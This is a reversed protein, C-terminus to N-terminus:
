IRGTIYLIGLVYVPLLITMLIIKTKFSTTTRPFNIYGWIFVFLFLFCSLLIVALPAWDYLWNKDACISLFAMANTVFFALGCGLVFLLAEISYHGM